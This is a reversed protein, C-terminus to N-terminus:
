PNAGPAPFGPTPGAGEERLEKKWGALRAEASEREAEAIMGKRQYFMSLSTHAFSDEPDIEVIRKAAEIAEDYRALQFHAMALGHLADTCRPDVELVARYAGIAEDYKDEGYLGLARNLLEERKSM